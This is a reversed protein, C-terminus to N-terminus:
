VRRSLKHAIIVVAIGVIWWNQKLTKKIKKQINFTKLDRQTTESTKIAEDKIFLVRPAKSIEELSQKPLHHKAVEPKRESINILRIFFDKIGSLQSKFRTFRKDELNVLITEVEHVKLAPIGHNSLNVFNIPMHASGDVTKSNKWKRDLSKQDWHSKERKAKIKRQKGKSRGQKPKWMKEKPKSEIEVKEEHQPNKLNPNKRAQHLMTKMKKKNRSGEIKQARSRKMTQQMTGLEISETWAHGSQSRDTFNSMTKKDSKAVEEKISELTSKM